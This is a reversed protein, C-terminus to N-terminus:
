VSMLDFCLAGIVGDRLFDGDGAEVCETCILKQYNPGQVLDNLAELLFVAKVQLANDLVLCLQKSLVNSCWNSGRRLSGQGYSDADSAANLTEYVNLKVKSIHRMMIVVEILSSTTISTPYALCASGILLGPQFSLHPFQPSSANLLKENLLNRGNLPPLFQFLSEFEDSLAVCQENCFQIAQCPGDRVENSSSMPQPALPGATMSARSTSALNDSKSTSGFSISRARRKTRSGQRRPYSPYETPQVLAVAKSAPVRSM